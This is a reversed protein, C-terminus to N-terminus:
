SITRREHFRRLTSSTARMAVSRDFPFCRAYRQTGTANKLRSASVNSQIIEHLDHVWVPLM